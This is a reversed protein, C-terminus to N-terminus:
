LIEKIQALYLSHSKSGALVEVLTGFGFHSKFGTVLCKSVGFIGAADDTLLVLDGVEPDCIDM